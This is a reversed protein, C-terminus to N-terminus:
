IDMNIWFFAGGVICIIFPKMRITVNDIQKMAVFRIFKRPLSTISVGFILKLEDHYLIKQM